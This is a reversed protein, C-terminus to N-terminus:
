LLTLFRVDAKMKLNESEGFPSLPGARVEYDYPRLHRKRSNFAM